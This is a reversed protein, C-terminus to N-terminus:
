FSTLFKRHFFGKVGYIKSKSLLKLYYDSYISGSIGLIIILWFEGRSLQENPRRQVSDDRLRNSASM